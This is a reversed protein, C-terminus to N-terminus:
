ETYDNEPDPYLLDVFESFSHAVEIFASEKRLGTWAPLGEVFAVVRGNGEPTLDLFLMSGGGDHSFPLVAPPVQFVQRANKIEGIFTDYGYTGREDPKTSFIVNFAMPEGDAHPPVNVLYPLHGGNAVGIFARFDVPLTTGLVAEISRIESESPPGDSELITLHKYQTAM